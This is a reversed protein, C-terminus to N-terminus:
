VYSWVTIRLLIVSKIMEKLPLPVVEPDDNSDIEETNGRVSGMEKQVM